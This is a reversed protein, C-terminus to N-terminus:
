FRFPRDIRTSDVAGCRLLLPNHYSHCRLLHEVIAELFTLRWSLDGLGRHLRRSILAGTRCRGQWTFKSGVFELHLLDCANLTAHFRDARLRFFVGGRQESPLLIDNFDGVLAWPLAVRHRFDALYEWLLCRTAYTLCACVGSCLWKQNGRAVEISICQNMSDIVQFRYSGGLRTLAWVGGAHGHAEEMAVAAYGQKDWFRKTKDYAVHTEFMFALDLKFHVLVERVYRQSRKSALGRVNWALVFFEKFEIMIVFPLPPSRANWSM